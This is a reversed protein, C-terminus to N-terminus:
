KLMILDDDKSHTAKHKVKIAAEMSAELCVLFPGMRGIGSGVCLFVDNPMTLPVENGSRATSRKM